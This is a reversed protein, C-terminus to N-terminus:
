VFFLIISYITNYDIYDALNTNTSEIKVFIKNFNLVLEDYKSKCQIAKLHIIYKDFATQLKNFTSKNIFFM